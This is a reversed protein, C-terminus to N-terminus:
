AYVAYNGTASAYCTTGVYKMTVVLVEGSASPTAPASGDANDLWEDVDSWTITRQASGDYVLYLTITRGSVENSHTITVNSDLTGYQDVGSAWNVAETAGLNGLSVPTATSQTYTIVGFTPSAGSGYYLTDFYTKLTAKINAWSLKKLVNSAASDILPVTDADVPTTKATSGHISSGVNGADTVDALAEIGSLKSIDSATTFKNTTSTDDIDDADLVVAGTQSNVSDVTNAEAGDAVNLYGRVNAPTTIQYGGLGNSTLMQGEAGPTLGAISKLQADAIKDVTVADNEIQATDVTNLDALAGTNATAGDEVNILTRVQAATLEESDGSGATVRGLIRDQAVNSVVDVTGGSPAAEWAANGAGDATLIYGDTAAGSGLTNADDGPQVASAALDGEAGTAYDDADFDTIESLTHTHSADAKAADLAEIKDRVANKSPAKGTVGNWTTENYATDDIDSITLVQEAKAAPDYTSTVMDGGGLAGPDFTVSGDGNDTLTSNPFIVTDAEVSPSGDGEKFTIASSTVITGDAVAQRIFGYVQQKGIGVGKGAQVAYQRVEDLRQTLDQVADISLKEGEPLLELANRIEEPSANVAEAVAKDWEPLEILTAAIQAAKKIEEETVEGDNGDKLNTIRENLRDIAGQLEGKLANAENKLESRSEALKEQIDGKISGTETRYSKLLDNIQKKLEKAVDLQGGQISKDILKVQDLVLLVLDALEANDLPQVIDPNERYLKLKKLTQPKM